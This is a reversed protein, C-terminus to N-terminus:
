NFFQNFNIGNTKRHIVPQTVPETPTPTQTNENVEVDQTTKENEEDSETVYIAQKLQKYKGKLKTNKSRM